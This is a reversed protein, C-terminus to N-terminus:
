YSSLGGDAMITQATIMKSRDSALFLAINAIDDPTGTAFPYDSYRFPKGATNAHQIRERARDSLALGPAIANVRIGDKAYTGARTRTLATIAGKAASYAHIQSVGRFALYSSMNVISGGGSRKMLSVGLRSCLVATLLERDVVSHFVSVTLDDVSADDAQSGGACNFLVDLRDGITTAAAAYMTEVQAEDTLDAVVSLWSSPGSRGAEPPRVAEVADNVDVAVVSAGERAFLLAAARGIGAAAGTVIAAKGNLLDNM